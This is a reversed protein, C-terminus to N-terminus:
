TSQRIHMAPMDLTPPRSFITADGFVKLSGSARDEAQTGVITGLVVTFAVLVTM